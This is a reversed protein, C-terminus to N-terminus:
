TMIHANKPGLRNLMASGCGSKASCSNCSTKLDANVTAIGDRWTVVTVWERMM